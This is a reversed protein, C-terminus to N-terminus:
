PGGDQAIRNRIWELRVPEGDADTAIVEVKQVSMRGRDFRQGFGTQFQSLPADLRGGAALAPTGGFFHDNVVVRVNRWESATRNEVTVIGEKLTIPDRPAECAALVRIAALAGHRSVRRVM